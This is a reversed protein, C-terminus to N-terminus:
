ASPLVHSTPATESWHSPAPTCKGISFIGFKPLKRLFSPHVPAGISWHLGHLPIMRGKKKIGIRLYNIIRSRIM